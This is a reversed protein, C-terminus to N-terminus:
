FLCHRLFREDVLLLPLGLELHTRVGPAAATAPRARHEALEAEAPDAQALQRVRALQGAHGLRAPSPLRRCMVIVSGMASMSVRMRLALMAICSSTRMGDELSLSASASTRSRSPYMSPKATSSVGSPGPRVRWTLIFYLGSRARVIEPM